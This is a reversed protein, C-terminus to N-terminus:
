LSSWHIIRADDSDSGSSADGWEIQFGGLFYWAIGKSRGYDGPIKKRIEEPIVIAERVCPSGFFFADAGNANASWCAAQTHNGAVRGSCADSAKSLATRNTPSYVFQTAFNEEVLVMGAITGVEGNILQKQYGMSNNQVSLREILDGQLQESHQVNIIGAYAGGIGTYGPVNRKKLELVAKRIHLASLSGDTNTRSFTGATGLNYTTSSTGSMKLSTSAFEIEVLGELCKATDDLLGTRLIENIDFQSLVESKLTFPISNGYENVSGTGWVMAQSSEHMTNTETLIGGYTGINSVKLWNFSEGAQKGFAEKYDVFQRFKMMPQATRRYALNLKTNTLVGSHTTWLMENAM